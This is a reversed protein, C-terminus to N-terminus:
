GAVIAVPESSVPAPKLTWLVLASLATVGLGAWYIMDYSKFKDHVLSGVMPGIASALAMASTIAGFVMGFVEAPFLLRTMCASVTFVAGM